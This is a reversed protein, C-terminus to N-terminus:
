AIRWGSRWPVVKGEERWRRFTDRMRQFSGRDWLVVGHELADLLLLQRDEFMREWESRAYPFVEVNGEAEWEAVRDVWRKGDDGRLGVLVDFDSGRTWDGRARSGFLVVFELEEPRERTIREVYRRM